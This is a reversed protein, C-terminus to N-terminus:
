FDNAFREGKKPLRIDGSPLVHGEEGSEQALDSIIDRLVWTEERFGIEDALRLAENEMEAAARRMEFPDRPWAIPARHDLVVHCLEHVLVARLVVDDLELAGRLFVVYTRRSGPGSPRVEALPPSSASLVPQVHFRVDRKGSELIEFFDAPLRGLADILRPMATEKSYVTVRATQRVLDNESEFAVRPKLYRAARDRGVPTADRETPPWVEAAGEKAEARPDVARHEANRNMASM